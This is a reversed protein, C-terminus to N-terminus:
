LNGSPPVQTRDNEPLLLYININLTLMFKFRNQKRVKNQEICIELRDACVCNPLSTQQRAAEIMHQSIDMALVLADPYRIQLKASMEGVGCGVDLIVKPKVAMWDLRALLAADNTGATVVAAFDDLM